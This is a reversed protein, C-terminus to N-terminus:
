LRVVHLRHQFAAGLPHHVAGVAGAPGRRAYLVAAAQGGALHAGGHGGAGPTAAAAAQTHQAAAVVKQLQVHHVLHQVRVGGRQAQLAPPQEHDHM